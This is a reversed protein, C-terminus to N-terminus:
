SSVAGVCPLVPCAVLRFLLFPSLLIVFRGGSSGCLILLEMVVVRGPISFGQVPGGGGPGAEALGVPVM